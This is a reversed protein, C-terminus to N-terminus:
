KYIISRNPANLICQFNVPSKKLSSVSFPFISFLSSYLGRDSRQAESKYYEGEILPRVLVHNRFMELVIHSSCLNKCLVVDHILISLIKRRRLLKKEFLPWGRTFAEESLHGTGLLVCGVLEEPWKRPAM